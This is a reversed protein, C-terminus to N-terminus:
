KGGKVTRIVANIVKLVDRKRTSQADNFETINRFGQKKIEISVRKVTGFRLKGDVKDLAGLLCYRGHGDSFDGKMWRRRVLDRVSRLTNFLTDNGYKPVFKM